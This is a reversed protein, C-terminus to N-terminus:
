FDRWDVLKIVLLTSIWVSLRSHKKVASWAASENRFVALEEIRSSLEAPSDDEALAQVNVVFSFGLVLLPVILYIPAAFSSSANVKM